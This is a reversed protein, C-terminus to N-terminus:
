RAERDPSMGKPSLQQEMVQGVGMGGARSMTDALTDALIYGYVGAGSGASGSMLPDLAPKLLQRLLIAEFQRAVKKADASSAAAAGGGRAATVAPTSSLERAVSGQTISSLPNM